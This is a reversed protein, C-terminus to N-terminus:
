VKVTEEPTQFFGDGVGSLLSDTASCCQSWPRGRGYAANQEKKSSHRRGLFNFQSVRVKLTGPSRLVAGSKGPESSANSRPSARWPQCRRARELVM